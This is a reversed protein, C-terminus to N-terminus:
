PFRRGDPYTPTDTARRVDIAERRWQLNGEGLDLDMVANDIDIPSFHLTGADVPAGPPASDCDPCRPRTMALPGSNGGGGIAWTPHGDTDYVFAVAYTIEGQRTLTIGWGSEAPDFWAATPFQTESSSGAAVPQMQTDVLIPSEQPDRNYQAEFRLRNEAAFTLRVSGITFATAQSGDWRTVQLPAEFLAGALPGVALYWEPQGDRGYTYWTMALSDGIVQLDIGQGARAPDSWGGAIPRFKRAADLPYRDAVKPVFLLARPATMAGPPVTGFVGVFAGTSGDYRLVQDTGASSVYLAGDPGFALGSPSQLGGSGAAVFVTGSLPNAPDIRVVRHRSTEAIYLASGDPAAVMASANSPAGFNILPQFRRVLAQTDLNVEAMDGNRDLTFLRRGIVALARPAAEFFADDDSAPPGFVGGNRLEGTVADFRRLQLTPYDGVYLQGAGDLAMGQPLGSALGPRTSGAPSDILVRDRAGDHRAYSRVDSAALALVRKRFPDWALVARAGFTQPTHAEAAEVGAYLGTAADLRVISDRMAVLLEVDAPANGSAVDPAGDGDADPDANDGIGDGDTDGTERADTPKADIGDAVGDGDSDVSGAPDDPLADQANPVDDGDRDPDANDGIGDGDIDSWESADDPFADRPDAVGDGDRDSQVTPDFPFADASDPVGDGDTDADLPLALEAGGAVTSARYAAVTQMNDRVRRANDSTGAVGCRIGACFVDPNSFVLLTRNRDPHGSGLSGMLTHFKGPVVLATGFGASSSNAGNQHEAGLNHGIEHAYVLEDCLSWSDFGDSVVNFGLRADDDFIYAIGCSDHVETDYPRLMTVIDAGTENRRAALTDLGPLGGGGGAVRMHELAAANSNALAYAVQDMGVVRMAVDTRSNAFVLNTLAVLHQIRTQAATGPYRTAYAPTYVILADITVGTAKASPVAAAGGGAAHLGRPAALAHEDPAMRRVDAHQTDILWARDGWSELRYTGSPTTWTAFSADPGVTMMVGHTSDIGDLVGDFTIDGTAHLTERPSSLTYAEGDPLVIRWATGAKRTERQMPTVSGDPLDALARLHTPLASKQLPAPSPLWQSAPADARALSPLLLLLSLPLAHLRM